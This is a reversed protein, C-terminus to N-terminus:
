ILAVRIHYTVVTISVSPISLLLSTLIVRWCLDIPSSLFRAPLMLQSNRHSSHTPRTRRKYASSTVFVSHSPSWNTKIRLYGRKTRIPNDSVRGAPRIAAAGDRAIYINKYANVRECFHTGWPCVRPPWEERIYVSALQPSGGIHFM